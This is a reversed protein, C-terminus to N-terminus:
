WWVLRKRDEPGEDFGDNWWGAAQDKMWDVYREAGPLTVKQAYVPGRAKCKGCMAQVAIRVQKRGDETTGYTRLTRQRM